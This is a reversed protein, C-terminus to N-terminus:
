LGRLELLGQQVVKVAVELGVLVMLGVLTYAVGEVVLM